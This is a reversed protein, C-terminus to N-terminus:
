FRYVASLSIVKGGLDVRDDSGDIHTVEQKNYLYRASATMACVASFPVTYGIEAFYGLTSASDSGDELDVYNYYMGGGASVSLNKFIEYELGLEAGKTNATIENEGEIANYQLAGIASLGGTISKSAKVFVNYGGDMDKANPIFYGAGASVSIGEQAGATAATLTILAAVALKKASIKKRFLAAFLGALMLILLMDTSGDAASCGGGGHAGFIGTDTSGGGSSGSGGDKALTLESFHNITVVYVNEAPDFYWYGDPNSSTGGYAVEDLRNGSLYISVEGDEYTLENASLWVTLPSSLTHIVNGAGVGNSIFMTVDFNATNDTIEQAQVLLGIDSSDVPNGSDDEADPFNDMDKFILYTDGNDIKVESVTANNIVNGVNVQAVTNVTITDGDGNTKQINLGTQVHAPYNDTLASVSNLIQTSVASANETDLDDSPIETGTAGNIVDLVSGPSSVSFSFEDSPSGIGTSSLPTVTWTYTGEPFAIPCVWEYNAGADASTLNSLTLEWNPIDVNGTVNIRYKTAGSVVSWKFTVNSTSVSESEAPFILTSQGLTVSISSNEIKTNVTYNLATPSVVPVNFSDSYISTHQPAAKVQIQCTGSAAITQESCTDSVITFPNALINNEAVTGFTVSSGSINTLTITKTETQGATLNYTLTQSSFSVPNSVATVTFTADNTASPNGADTVTLTITDSTGNAAGSPITVSVPVDAYEMAALTVSSSGLSNTWTNASASTVNFTASSSGLNQIRATTHIVQGPVGSESAPAFIQAIGGPSFTEYAIITWTAGAALSSKNWQLSYGADVYNPNTSDELLGTEMQDNNSSYGGGFYHSAPTAPHAMFSMYATDTVNSNTLYVMKASSSYFSNSDDDYGYYTDGGHFFKLSSKASSSVNKIEWKKELYRNGDVYTIYSTIQIDGGFATAVSKLTTNNVIEVSVPTIDGDCSGNLYDSCYSTGGIHLVNAFSAEDYYQYYYGPGDSLSTMYLSVSPTGDDALAVILPDGKLAAWNLSSSLADGVQFAIGAGTLAGLSSYTTNAAQASFTGAIFMILLAFTRIIRFM